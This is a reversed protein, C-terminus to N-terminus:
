LQRMEQKLELKIAAMKLSLQTHVLTLLTGYLKTYQNNNAEM